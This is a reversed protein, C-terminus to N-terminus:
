LFLVEYSKVMKEISFIHSREISRKSLYNLQTPSDLIAQIIKALAVADDLPAFAGADALVERLAPIDSAVVPLGARMAELVAMPMAEYLSPFVFVHAAFLLTLVAESELEGLFHVRTQLRLEAVHQQLSDRLEGDGVLLLHTTPLHTLADILITQNKQRALRGVNILLPADQPLKWRDCIDQRNGVFEILPIGNYIKCLSKKYVLPYTAISDVVVQSVAVNNTYFATSGMIRDIWKAVNPYTSSPNHQVTIRKSVGCLRGIFQGLINAYHTHTILVDPKESNLLQWLLVSIKIYDFASPPHDLLVRINPANVYAPRKLYLFCVETKYGKQHLAEHLLMAVRQAGGAEMQTVIQLVKM